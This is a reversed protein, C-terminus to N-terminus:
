TKLYDSFINLTKTIEKPLPSKRIYIPKVINFKTVM